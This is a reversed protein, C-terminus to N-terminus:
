HKVKLKMRTCEQKQIQFTENIMCKILLKVPTQVKRQCEHYIQTLVHVRFFNKNKYQFFFTFPNVKLPLLKAMKMKQKRRLPPRLPASKKKLSNVGRQLTKNKLSAFLFDHYARPWTVMFKEKYCGDLNIMSQIVLCTRSLLLQSNLQHLHATELNISM